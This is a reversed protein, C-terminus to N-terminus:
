MNPTLHPAPLAPGLWRARAVFVMIPADGAFARRQWDGYVADVEFGAATLEDDIAGLERFWLTESVTVTEDHDVFLNHATLQM